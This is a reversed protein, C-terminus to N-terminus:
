PAWNVNWGGGPHQSLVSFSTFFPFHFSLFSGGVQPSALCFARFLGKEWMKLGCRGGGRWPEDICVPLM